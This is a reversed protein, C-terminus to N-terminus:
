ITRDDRKRFLYIVEHIVYFTLPIAVVVAVVGWLAYGISLLANGVGGMFLSADLSSILGAVPNIIGGWLTRTGSVTAFATPSYGTVGLGACVTQHDTFGGTGITDICNIFASPVEQFSYLGDNNVGGATFVMNNQGFNVGDGIIATDFMFVYNDGSVIALLEDATRGEQTLFFSAFASYPLILFALFIVLFKKM